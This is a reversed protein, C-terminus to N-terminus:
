GLVVLDSDPHVPPSSLRLSELPRSAVQVARIKALDYPLLENMWLNIDSSFQHQKPYLGKKKNVNDTKDITTM